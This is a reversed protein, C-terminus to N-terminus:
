KKPNKMKEQNQQQIEMMRKMLKNEKPPENRKAQIQAHIKNPDIIYKQIVFQIALTIVNSVCYYFTLSAPLKNFIGLFMIPMIFPMYKLMPNSQDGMAMNMSYLSVLLSTIVFLITFLSIHDGYFPITFPLKLISDYSSLDNAWLFPQQRLEIANPFFSLLAFFVPLQLLAPLCGGLPNVGAERYLKMQEMGFAQKDEGFKEKLEDMEPKLAKMKASSVYSKYNFPSMLLRLIVTLLLIVVGYSSFIGALGNFIPIIIWKNIYKVFGFIGYSLPIIEELEIQFSKLTKYENPGTYWRFKLEQQPAVTLFAQMTSLNKKTTDLTPETQVRGSTIIKSDTILTTNFYHQKFSLWKVGENFQKTDKERITYYDYGEKELNYCVQTNQVESEPDLETLKSQATWEVDMNRAANVQHPLAKMSLMYGKDPLNYVLSLNPHKLTLTHKDASLEPVFSYNKSHEVTGKTSLFGFDLSNKDGEMLHLPLGSSTKYHKLNIQKAYGGRNSIHIALDNNELVLIQEPVQLASDATTTVALSTDAKPKVIKAQIRELSDKKRKEAAKFEQQGQSTYMVYGILLLILLGFGILSNKDQM